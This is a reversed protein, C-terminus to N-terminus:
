ERYVRCNPQCFLVLLGSTASISVGAAIGGEFDSLEGKEGRRISPKFKLLM